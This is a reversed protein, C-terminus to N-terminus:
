QGKEAKKAAIIEAEHERYYKIDGSNVRDWDVVLATKSGAVVVPQRTGKGPVGESPLFSKPLLGYKKINEATVEVPKLEGPADADPVMFVPTGDDDIRTHEKLLVHASKPELFKGETIATSVAVRLDKEKGKAQLEAERTDRVKDKERLALLERKMGAMEANAEPGSASGDELKKRLEQIEVELKQKDAKAAQLDKRAKRAENALQRDKAAQKEEPTLGDPDDDPVQAGPDVSTEPTKEVM